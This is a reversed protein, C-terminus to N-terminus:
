TTAHIAVAVGSHRALVTLCKFNEINMSVM